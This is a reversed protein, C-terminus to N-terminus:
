FVKWKSLCDKHASYQCVLVLRHTFHWKLYTMWFNVSLSKLEEFTKKWAHNYSLIYNSSQQWGTNDFNSWISWHFISMIFYSLYNSLNQKFMVNMVNSKGYLDFLWLLWGVSAAFRVLDCFQLPQLPGGSIGGISIDLRVELKCGKM